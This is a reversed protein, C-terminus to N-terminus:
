PNFASLVEVESRATKLRFVFPLKKMQEAHETESAIHREALEDLHPTGVHAYIVHFGNFTSVKELREVRHRFARLTV